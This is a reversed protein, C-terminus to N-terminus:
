RRKQSTHSPDRQAYNMATQVIFVHRACNWGNAKNRRNPKRPLSEGKGHLSSRGMKRRKDEEKKCIPETKASSAPQQSACQKKPQPPRSEPTEQDSGYVPEDKVREFGWAAIDGTFFEGQFSQSGLGEETEPLGEYTDAFPNLGELSAMGVHSTVVLTDVHDPNARIILPGDSVAASNRHAISAGTPVDRWM